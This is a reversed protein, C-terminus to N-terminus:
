QVTTSRLANHPLDEMFGAWGSTETDESTLRRSYRRQRRDVWGDKLGVGSSDDTDPTRATRQIVREMSRPM